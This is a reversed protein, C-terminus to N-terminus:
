FQSPFLNIEVNGMSPISALIAIGISTFIIGLGRDANEAGLIDTSVVPMLMICVGSYQLCLYIYLRLNNLFYLQSSTKSNISFWQFQSDEICVCNFFPIKSLIESFYLKSLTVKSFAM